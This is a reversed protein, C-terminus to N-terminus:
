LGAGCIPFWRPAAERKRFILAVAEKLPEGLSRPIRLEDRFEPYGRLLNLSETHTAVPLNGLPSYPKGVFRRFRCGLM